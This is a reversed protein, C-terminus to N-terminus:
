NAVIKDHWELWPEYKDKLYLLDSHPEAVTYKPDSYAPSGATLRACGVLTSEAQKLIRVESSIASALGSRIFENKSLGGSLYVASPEANPFLDIQIQKVRFIIGELILRRKDEDALSTANDSFTTTIDSRWTPSGLGALDPICFHKPLRDNTIPLPGQGFKAAATGAGNIAGETMYLVTGDKFWNAVSCLYNHPVQDRSKIPRLVFGGTGLNVLAHETRDGLIALAASSQDAILSRLLLGGKLDTEFDEAECVTALGQMPINFLDCLQPSWEGEDIDFLLTRAAMSIDTIHRRTKSINWTLFSDLTGFLYDGESIRASLDPDSDFLFSLKPALYYPTLLLGTYKHLIEKPIDASQCWSSARTDQCSILPTKPTGTNKDWVVFTSRQSTIGVPLLKPLNSSLMDLLELTRQLYYRPDSERIHGTGTLAPAPASAVGVVAGNEQLVAAKINTTGLDLALSLANM